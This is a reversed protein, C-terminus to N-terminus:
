KSLQTSELEFDPTKELLRSQVRDKLDKNKHYRWTNQGSIKLDLGCLLCKGDKGSVAPKYHLPRGLLRVKGM